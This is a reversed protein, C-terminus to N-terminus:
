SRGTRIPAACNACRSRYRSASRTKWGSLTIKAQSTDANAEAMKGEGLNNEISKSFRVIARDPEINLNVTPDMSDRAGDLKASAAAVNQRAAKADARNELAVGVLM